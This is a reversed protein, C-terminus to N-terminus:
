RTHSWVYAKHNALEYVYYHGRDAENWSARICPGIEFYTFSEDEGSYGFVYSSDEEMFKTFTKGDARIMEGAWAVFSDRDATFSYGWNPSFPYSKLTAINRADEPLWGMGATEVDPYQYVGATFFSFVCAGVWLAFLGIAFLKFGCLIRKVRNM